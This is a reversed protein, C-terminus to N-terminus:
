PMDAVPGGSSRARAMARLEWAQPVLEHLGTNRAFTRYLSRVRDFLVAMALYYQQRAENPDGHASTDLIEDFSRARLEILSYIHKAHAASLQAAVDLEIDFPPVDLDLKGSSGSSDEFQQNGTVADAALRLWPRLRATVRMTAVNESDTRRRQERRQEQRRAMEGSLYVAVFIGGTQVWAAMAGNKNM